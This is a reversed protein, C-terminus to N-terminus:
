WIKKKKSEHKTKKKVLIHHRDDGVLIIFFFFLVKAGNKIKKKTKNKLKFFIFCYKWTTQTNKKQGIIIAEHVIHPILSFSPAIWLYGM